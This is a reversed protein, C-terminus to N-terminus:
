DVLPQARERLAQPEMIESLGMLPAELVVTIQTTLVPSVVSIPFLNEELVGEEVLEQTELTELLALM